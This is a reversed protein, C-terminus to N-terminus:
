GKKPDKRFLENLDNQNLEGFWNSTQFSQIQTFSVIESASISFVTEVVEHLKLEEIIKKRWKKKVCYNWVDEKTIHDYGFHQFEEIKSELAPLVKMFLDPHDMNM